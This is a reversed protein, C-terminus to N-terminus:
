CNGDDEHKGYDCEPASRLYRPNDYEEAWNHVDNVIGSADDANLQSDLSKVLHADYGIGFTAYPIKDLDEHANTICMDHPEHYVPPTAAAVTHHTAASYM